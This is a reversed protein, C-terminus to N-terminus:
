IIQKYIKLLEWCVFLTDKSYDYHKISNKVTETVM